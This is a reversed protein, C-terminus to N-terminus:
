ENVKYDTLEITKIKEKKIYKREKLIMTIRIWQLKEKNYNNKIVKRWDKWKGGNEPTLCVDNDTGRDKDTWRIVSNEM